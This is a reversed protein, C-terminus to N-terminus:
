GKHRTLISLYSMQDRKKLQFRLLEAELFEIYDLVNRIQNKSEIAGLLDGEEKFERTMNLASVDCVTSLLSFIEGELRKSYDSEIQKVETSLYGTEELALLVMIEYLYDKGQNHIMITRDEGRSLMWFLLKHDKKFHKKKLLFSIRAEDSTIKKWGRIYQRPKIGM